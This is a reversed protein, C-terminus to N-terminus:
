GGPRLTPAGGAGGIAASPMGSAGAPMTPAGGAPQTGGTKPQEAKAYMMKAQIAQDKLQQEHQAQQARAKQMNQADQPTGIIAEFMPEDFVEMVMRALAYVHSFDNQVLPNQMFLNYLFLTEQRKASKDLAAGQGNIGLEFDNALMQKTIVLEQSGNPTNVNFQDQNKGYQLQLQHTQWFVKALAKRVQDIMMAIRISIFTQLMQAQAKTNGRGMTTAAPDYLGMMIQAYQYLQSESEWSSPLIDPLQILGVDDKSQVIYQQTPAWGLDEKMERVGAVKYMPPALRLDIQDNRQNNLGNIQLQISALREMVGWGFPANPRPMICLPVAPRRGHFYKAAKVGAVRMTGRHFWLVNEEVQEDNDLDFANTHLRWLKFYAAKHEPMSPEPMPTVDIQGGMEMDDNGSGEEDNPLEDGAYTSCIYDVEEKILEKSKVMARLQSETFYKIFGVMPAEEVSRAWAPFLYFDRLAVANWKVNNFEIVRTPKVVPRMKPNMYEDMAQIGDVLVPEYVVTRMWHESYEWVPEIVGTGDRIALFLSNFVGEDWGNEKLQKNYWQEVPWQVDGAAKTRGRVVLLRDINLGELIRSGVTDAISPAIPVFVDSADAWPFDRGYTRQEYLNAFLALNENLAARQSVGTDIMSAIETALRERRDKNVVPDKIELVYTKPSNTLTDIPLKAM